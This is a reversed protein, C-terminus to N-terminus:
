RTPPEGAGVRAAREERARLFGIFIAPSAFAFFFTGLLLAVLVIGWSIGTTVAWATAVVTALVAGIGFWIWERSRLAKAVPRGDDSSAAMLDDQRDDTQAQTLLETKEGVPSEGFTRESTM